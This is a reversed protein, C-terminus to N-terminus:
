RVHIGLKKSTMEQEKESMRKGKELDKSKGKLFFGMIKELIGFEASGTLRKDCLGISFSDSREAESEKKQIGVGIVVDTRVIAYNGQNLKPAM